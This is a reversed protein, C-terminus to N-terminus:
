INARRLSQYIRIQLLSGLREEYGPSTEGWFKHARNAGPCHRDADAATVSDAQPRDAEDSEVVYCEVLQKAFDAPAPFLIASQEVSCSDSKPTSTITVRGSTAPWNTAISASRLARGEPSRGGCQGTSM